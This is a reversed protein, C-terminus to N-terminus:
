CYVNIFTIKLVSFNALRSIPIWNESSSKVVTPKEGGTSQGFEFQAILNQNNEEVFTGICREDDCRLNLIKVTFFMIGNQLPM